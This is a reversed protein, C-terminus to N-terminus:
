EAQDIKTQGSGWQLFATVILIFIFFVPIIVESNRTKELFEYQLSLAIMMVSILLVGWVFYRTAGFFLGMFGTILVGLFMIDYQWPFPEAGVLAPGSLIALGVALIGFVFLCLGWVFLCRGWNNALIQM